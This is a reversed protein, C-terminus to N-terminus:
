LKKVFFAKRLETVIQEPTIDFYYLAQRRGKDPLHNLYGIANEVSFEGCGSKEAFNSPLDTWIAADFDNSKTWKEIVSQIEAHASRSTSTLLDVFGIRQESTRERNQLNTIAASVDTCSSKAYFTEVLAGHVPDIVLTLAGGRSQSIRSYEIPLVPGGTQWDGEINLAEPENILSGWGLIAINAM